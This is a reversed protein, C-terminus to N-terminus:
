SDRNEFTKPDRGFIYHYKPYSDPLQDLLPKEFFTALQAARKQYADDINGSRADPYLYHLPVFKTKDHNHVLLIQYETWNRKSGSHIYLRTAVGTYSTMPESWLTHNLKKPDLCVVVERDVAFHALPRNLWKGYVILSAGIGGHILIFLPASGLPGGGSLLMILVFLTFGSWLIGFAVSGSGNGSLDRVTFRLPFSLQPAPSM